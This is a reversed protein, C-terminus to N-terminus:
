YSEKFVDAYPYHVNYISISIAYIRYFKTPLKVPDLKRTSYWKKFSIKYLLTKKVKLSHYAKQIFLNSCIYNERKNGM